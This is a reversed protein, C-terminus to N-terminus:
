KSRLNNSCFNYMNILELYSFHVEEEYNWSAAISISNLWPASRSALVFLLSRGEPLNSTGKRLKLKSESQWKREAIGTREEKIVRQEHLIAWISTEKGQM